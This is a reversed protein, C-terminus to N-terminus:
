LIIIPKYIHLSHFQVYSKINEHPVSILSSIQYLLVNNNTTIVLSIIPM